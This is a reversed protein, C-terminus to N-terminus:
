APQVEAACSLVDFCAALQPPMPTDILLCVCRLADAFAQPVNGDPLAALWQKVLAPRQPRALLALRDIAGNLDAPAAAGAPLSPLGLGRLVGDAWRAAGNASLLSALALSMATVAAAADDIALPQPAVAHAPERAALAQQLVRLQLYERLSVRGDALALERARRLLAGCREPALAAVRAALREFWPLRRQAAISQMATWLRATGAASALRQWAEFEPTAPPGPRLLLALVAAEVGDTAGSGCLAALEDEPAIVAMATATASALAMSGVPFPMPPLDQAQPEDGPLPDDALPPMDHGFIRRVREEIPPHTALWGDAVLTDSSLLLHSVVEANVHEIREGRRLQMAVKRLANGLGDPQRTFQVAAADALHERERSVGAKLLRGALWGVSGAVVLALGALWTPARRGRDDATMLSRGFTFVMQLGYVMGILRMNLRTDGHLIHAFEHAVVGQLEDRTLRELAGRTVTIVSDGPEWGAALANIADERDLVFVRPPQLACAIAMEDVVNRLRRELATHPETVERGGLLQAVHAGGSRLQLSELWAGGLVFGLTVLTNTEFFWRPYGFFAGFQLRWALALAGNVGLVTLLVTFAFLVVLVRTAVRAQEQQERFRM